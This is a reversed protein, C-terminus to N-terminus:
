SVMHHHIHYSVIMITHNIMDGVFHPINKRQFIILIISQSILVQYRPTQFIHHVVCQIAMKLLSCAIRLFNVKPVIIYGHKSGYWPAERLIFPCNLCLEITCSKQVQVFFSSKGFVHKNQRWIQKGGRSMATQLPIGCSSLKRSHKVPTTVAIMFWGPEHEFTTTWFIIFLGLLGKWKRDFGFSYFCVLYFETSGHKSYVDMLFM